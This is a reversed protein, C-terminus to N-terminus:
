PSGISPEFSPLLFFFFLQRAHQLRRWRRATLAPLLRPRFVVPPQHLRPAQPAIVYYISQARCVSARPAPAGKPVTVAAIVPAPQLLSCCAHVHRGHAATKRGRQVQWLIVEQVDQHSGISVTHRSM